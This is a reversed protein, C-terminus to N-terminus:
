RSAPRNLLAALVLGVGAGWLVAASAALVQTETEGYIWPAFAVAVGDILLATMTVVAVGAFLQGAALGALWRTMLVFPLTGPVVLAYVILRAGGALMGAAALANLLLAAGLWLATGIGLLVSMQRANLGLSMM